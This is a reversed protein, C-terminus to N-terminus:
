RAPSPHWLWREGHLSHRPQSKQQSTCPSCLMVWSQYPRHHQLLYDMHLMLPMPILTSTVKSLPTTSPSLMPGRSAQTCLRKVMCATCPSPSMMPAQATCLYCGHSQATIGEPNGTWASHSMQGRGVPDGKTSCFPSAKAWGPPPLQGEGPRGHKWCRTKLMETVDRKKWCRPATQCSSVGEQPSAAFCPQEWFLAKRTGGWGPM